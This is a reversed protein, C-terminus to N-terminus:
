ILIGIGFTINSFKDNMQLKANSIQYQKFFTKKKFM